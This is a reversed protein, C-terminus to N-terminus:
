RERRVEGRAAGAKELHAKVLARARSIRKWAAQESCGLVAGVEAASLGEWYTLRLAERDAEALLRMAEAVLLVEDDPGQSRAGEAVADLLLRERERKQYANGLHNRATRYLWTIPFPDDPDFKRWATVFCEATVEKATEADAIRRVVYRLVREYHERYFADFASQAM